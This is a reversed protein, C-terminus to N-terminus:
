KRTKEMCRAPRPLAIILRLRDCREAKQFQKEKKETQRDTERWREREKKGRGMEKKKIKHISLETHHGM